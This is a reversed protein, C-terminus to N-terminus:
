NLNQGHLVEAGKPTILAFETRNKRALQVIRFWHDATQPPNELQWCGASVCRFAFILMFDDLEHFYRMVWKEVPKRCTPCDFGAPRIEVVPVDLFPGFSIHDLKM